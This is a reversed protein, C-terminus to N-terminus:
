FGDCRKVASLGCQGPRLCPHRAATGATLRSPMLRGSVMPLYTRNSSQQMEIKNTELNLELWGFIYLGIFRRRFAMTM